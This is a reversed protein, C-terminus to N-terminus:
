LHRGEASSVRCFFVTLLHCRERSHRSVNWADWMYMEWFLTRRRQTEEPSLNWLAPDRETIHDTDMLILKM